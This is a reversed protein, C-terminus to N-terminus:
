NLIYCILTGEKENDEELDDCDSLDNTNVNM